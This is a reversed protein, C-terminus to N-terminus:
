RYNAVVDNPNGGAAEYGRAYQNIHLLDMVGGCHTCHAKAGFSYPPAALDFFHKPCSDLKERNIKAQLWLEHLHDNHM